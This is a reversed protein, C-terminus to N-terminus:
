FGPDWESKQPVDVLQYCVIVDGEKPVAEEDQFAIGCEVGNKISDVESKLHKM